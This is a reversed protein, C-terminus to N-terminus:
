HIISTSTYHRHFGPPPRTITSRLFLVPPTLLGLPLGIAIPPLSSTQCRDAAPRHDSSPRASTWRCDVITERRLHMPPAKFGQLWM